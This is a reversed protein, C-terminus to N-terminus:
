LHSFFLKVRAGTPLIVYRKKYYRKGTKVIWDSINRGTLNYMIDETVIPTSPPEFGPSFEPCQMTGLSCDCEIVRNVISLNYPSTLDRNVDSANCTDM